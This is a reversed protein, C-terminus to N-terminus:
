NIEITIGNKMETTELARYSNNNIKNLGQGHREIDNGRGDYGKHLDEIREAGFRPRGNGNTHCRQGYQYGDFEYPVFLSANIPIAEYM